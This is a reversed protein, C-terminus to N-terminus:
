VLCIASIIYPFIATLWFMYRFGFFLVPVPL